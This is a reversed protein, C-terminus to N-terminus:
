ISQIPYVWSYIFKLLKHMPKIKILHTLELVELLISSFFNFYISINFLLFMCLPHWSSLVSVCVNFWFCFGWLSVGWFVLVFEFYSLDLIEVFYGACFVLVACVSGLLWKDPDQQALNYLCRYMVVMGQLLFMILIFM